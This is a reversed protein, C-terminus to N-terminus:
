DHSETEHKPYVINVEIPERNGLEDTEIREVYGRKKGKTKLYFILATINDAKIHKLLQSEAFDLNKEEVEECDKEFEKDEKCWNYYTRRSIGVARCALTINGLSNGLADHFLEKQKRVREEVAKSM